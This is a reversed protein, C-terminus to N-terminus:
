RPRILDSWGPGTEITSGRRGGGMDPFRPKDPVVALGPRSGLLGVVATNVLEPDVEGDDGLLDALTLGFGFVDDPVALRDGVLRAVEAHQMREVRAVLGDREGEVERLRTRYKAAERNSTRDQDGEDHQEVDTPAAHAEQGETGDQPEDPQQATM